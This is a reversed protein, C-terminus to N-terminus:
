EGIRIILAVEDGRSDVEKIAQKPIPINIKICHVLLATFLEDESFTLTIDDNLYHVKLLFHNNRGLRKTIEYPQTKPAVKERRRVMPLLAEM